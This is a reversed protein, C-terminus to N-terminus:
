KLGVKRLDLVAQRGGLKGAERRESCMSESFIDVRKGYAKLQVAQNEIGLQRRLKAPLLLRGQTDLDSTAGYYNGNFLALDAKEPEAPCDELFAETERWASITYISAILCDLSTVFFQSVGMAAFFQQFDTPLKIRGKDDLKAEHFGLPSGINTTEAGQNEM